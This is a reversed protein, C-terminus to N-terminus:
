KQPKTEEAALPLVITVTTGEGEVSSLMMDGKHNNVISKSVSLGLGTGQTQGHRIDRWARRAASGAPDSPQAGADNPANQRETSKNYIKTTFFPEFIKQMDEKKIGVGNDRVEIACFPKKFSLEPKQTKYTRVKLLGEKRKPIAQAANVLINIIVQTIQNRDVNIYLGSEYDTEISVHSKEEMPINNIAYEILEQPQVRETRLESPRAFKLLNKVITDARLTADKIKTMTLFADFFPSRPCEAPFALELLYRNLFKISNRESPLLSAFDMKRLEETVRVLELAERGLQMSKNAALWKDYFVASGLALNLSEVAKDQAPEGEALGGAAMRRWLALPSQGLASFEAAAFDALVLEKIQLYEVGGMIIGLPNKIEHAIGSSFRGLAALKESQILQRHAEQLESYASALEDNASALERTRERVRLELETRARELELQAKKQESIDRLVGEFGLVKGSADQRLSSTLLCDMVGGDMNKLKLGYNRVAGHRRVEGLFAALDNQSLFIDRLHAGNRVERASLGFLDRFSHNVEILGGTEDAIYIADLFDEFLSRYKLENEKLAHEARKLGTIDNGVCLIEQRAESVQMVRNTWSIWAKEGDRRRNESEYSLYNEPGESLRYIMHAVSARVKDEPAFLTDFFNRGVIEEEKYGFFNQAFENFFTISGALDMRMIISNASEVLTRYKEESRHIAQQAVKAQSVDWFVLVAGDVLGNEKVIPTAKCGVPILRGDAHELLIDMPARVMENQDMASFVPNPVLLSTKEDVIEVVENVFRGMSAAIDRGTLNEAVNNMLKIVGDRDVAILADAIGMLTASLWRRNEMLANEIERRHLSFKILSPVDSECVPNGPSGYPQAQRLADMVCVNDEDTFFVCPVGCRRDVEAAALSAGEQGGGFLMDMLVLDPHERICAAVAEKHSHAVAIVAFGAQEISRL